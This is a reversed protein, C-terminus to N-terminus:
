AQSLYLVLQVWHSQMRVENCNYAKHATFLNLKTDSLFFSIQANKKLFEKWQATKLNNKKEAIWEFHGLMEWM